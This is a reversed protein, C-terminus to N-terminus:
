HSTEPYGGAVGCYGTAERADHQTNRHGEADRISHWRWAMCASGHCHSPGTESNMSLPCFRRGAEDQSIVMTLEPFYRGAKAPENLHVQSM